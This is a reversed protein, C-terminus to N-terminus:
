DLLFLYYNQNDTAKGSLVMTYESDEIQQKLKEEFVLVYNIKYQVLVPEVYKFNFKVQTFIKWWNLRMLHFIIM